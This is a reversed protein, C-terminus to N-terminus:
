ISFHWVETVLLESKLIEQALEVELLRFCFYYRTIYHLLDKKDSALSKLFQRDSNNTSKMSDKNIKDTPKLSLESM